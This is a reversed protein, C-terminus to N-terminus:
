KLLCYTLSSEVVASRITSKKFCILGRYICPKTNGDLVLMVPNGGVFSMRLNLRMNIQRRDPGSGKTKQQRSANSVVAQM